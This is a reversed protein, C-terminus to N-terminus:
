AVVILHALAREVELDLSKVVEEEEMIELAIPRRMLQVAVILCALAGVVEVEM